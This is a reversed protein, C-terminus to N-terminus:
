YTADKFGVKRFASGIVKTIANNKSELYDCIFNPLYVVKIYNDNKYLKVQCMRLNRKISSKKNNAEQTLTRM